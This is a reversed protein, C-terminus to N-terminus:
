LLPGFRGGDLSICSVTVYGNMVLCFLSYRWRDESTIVLLIFPQIFVLFLSAQSLNEGPTINEQSKNGTVKSTIEYVKVLQILALVGLVVVIFILFKNEM